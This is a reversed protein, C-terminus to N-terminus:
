FNSGLNKIYGEGVLAEERESVTLNSVPGSGAVIARVPIVDVVVEGVVNVEPEEEMVIVFVVVLGEELHVYILFTGSAM